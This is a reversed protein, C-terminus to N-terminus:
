LKIQFIRMANATTFAALEEVSVGRAQAVASAVHMVFHPENRESRHPPPTLYPADTEILLRDKPVVRAVPWLSNETENNRPAFAAIGSLSIYFDNAAHALAEDVTGTFCHLIGRARLRGAALYEGVVRLVHDHADRCHIIVPKNLEDCLDLHQRFVREQTALVQAHDLGEPLRYLDFGTEGFAVVKPDRALARYFDVDFIEARSTFASGEHEDIPMTHLHNPHLGVSAFVGREFSHAHAVARKSTTSQTGVTVMWVRDDLARQTAQQSDDKFAAFHVHTHTDFFRPTM